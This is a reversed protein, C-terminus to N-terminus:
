LTLSEAYVKLIDLLLQENEYVFEATLMQAAGSFVTVRNEGEQDTLICAYASPVGKQIQPVPVIGEKRLFDMCARGDPDDGICGLFSVEAGLRAAAVAQNYGKGGPEAYLGRAHVTEGPMHFHDVNLFVSNGCLGLVSIKMAIKRQEVFTKRIM